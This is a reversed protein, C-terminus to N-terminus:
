FVAISDKMEGNITYYVKGEEPKAYIDLEKLDKIMNGGDKWRQKIQALIEQEEFEFGKYQVYFRSKMNKGRTKGAVPKEPVEIEIEIPQVESAKVQERVPSQNRRLKKQLKKEMMTNKKKAIRRSAM